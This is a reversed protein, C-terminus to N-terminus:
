SELHANETQQYFWAMFATRSYRYGNGLHVCPLGRRKLSTVENRSIQLLACVQETNLVEDHALDGRLREAIEDVLPSFDIPM